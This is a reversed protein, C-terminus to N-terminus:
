LIASGQSYFEVDDFVNNSSVIENLTQGLIPHEYDGWVESSCRLLARDQILIPHPLTLEPILQVKKDYSLLLARTGQHKTQLSQLAMSIQEPGFSTMAKFVCILESSHGYKKQSTNRKYITSVSHFSVISNMENTLQRVMKQGRTIDVLLGILILHTKSEFSM